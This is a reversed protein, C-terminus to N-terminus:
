INLFPATISKPSAKIAEPTGTIVVKGGNLGAGPGMEVVWDASEIVGVHHEILVVTHGQEILRHLLKLLKEVDSFHLGLTPEDLLFLTKSRGGKVIERALKIRQSEGLSLSQMEQGLKVYDLGVEKLLDLSKKIPKHVEFVVSAEAVTLQLIDGFDLGKYQVELSVPNLRKGKCVDCPVRVSPLFLLDVKKYGLGFCNSCMGKIQNTSFNRPQLGRIEAEPLRAFFTRIKPLVESYTGVDSRSTMGVPNQDLLVVQDWTAGTIKGFPTEFSGGRKIAETALPAILSHLLTSKGSGSVGTIVTLCEQPIDLNVRNLNFLTGEKLSFITKSKKRKLPRHLQKRGSLYLGTESHAHQLIHSFSGEAMIRGGEQGGKPGFDVIHDAIGITLPDHEVVVLTNGEEKLRVLTQNLRTVDSPHLGTTPEDLVYLVGTLGSGLQRALRVRQVEGGSLTTSTRDLSLYGVGIEDLFKLKKQLTELIEELYRHPPTIQHFFGPLQDLPLASIEPLTKNELKVARSVSNLRTGQCAPCSHMKMLPALIEKSEKPGVRALMELGKELGRWIFSGGKKLPIPKSDGKTLFEAEKLSLDELEKLPSIGIAQLLARGKTGFFLDFIQKISLPLLEERHLLDAGVDQGTGSCTPCYGEPLNFAFSKPTIPPFTEGTEKDAFDLFYNALKDDVLLSIRKKGVKSANEIAQLLLDSEDKHYSLRDIVLYLDNKEKPDFPIKDIPLDPDDLHYFKGNLYIRQYGGMQWGKLFLSIEEGRKPSLPALVFLKAGEKLEEMLAKLLTDPRIEQLKHGTKPNYPIGLKAFLVRLLDHIETMTGITSRLNGSNAKQEIAIAPSLGEISEVKPKPMQTVFQRAYPSLSETYRRQGEAFLTEHALSSKGSGSPGTFITLQDRPIKLDFGKLNNQQAKKITIANEGM